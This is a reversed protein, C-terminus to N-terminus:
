IEADTLTECIKNLSTSAQLRVVTESSAALDELVGLFHTRDHLLM